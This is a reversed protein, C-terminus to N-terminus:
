ALFQQKFEQPTMIPINNKKAFETKNSNDDKSKVILVFVDKTMKDELTAGFTPLIDIIQKDRIKTMVIKKKYLPHSTNEIVVQPQETVTVVKNNNNLKYELGCDSLFTLFNHINNVFEVANENGIGKILKLM